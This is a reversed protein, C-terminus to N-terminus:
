QIRAGTDAVALAVMDGRGLALLTQEEWEADGDVMALPLVLGCASARPVIPRAKRCHTHHSVPLLLSALVFGYLYTHMHTRVHERV